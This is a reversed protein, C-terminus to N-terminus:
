LSAAVAVTPQHAKILGSMCAREDGAVSGSKEVTSRGRIEYYVVPSAAIDGNEAINFYLDLVCHGSQYQWIVTPADARELDPPGFVGAIDLAILRTLSASDEILLSALSDLYSLRESDSLSIRDAIRPSADSFSRDALNQRVSLDSPRSSLFLALSLVACLSLFAALRLRGRGRMRIIRPFALGVEPGTYIGARIM